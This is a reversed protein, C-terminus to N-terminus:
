PAVAVAVTVLPTIVPRVTVEAPKPYVEGGLTVNELPAATASGIM